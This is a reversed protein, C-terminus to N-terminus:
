PNQTDSQFGYAPHCVAPSAVPGQAKDSPHLETLRRLPPCHTSNPSYARLATAWIM